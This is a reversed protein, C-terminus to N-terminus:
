QKYRYKRNLKEFTFLIPNYAKGGSRAVPLSHEKRMSQCIQWDDPPKEQKQQQKEQQQKEQM